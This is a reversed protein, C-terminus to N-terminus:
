QSKNTVSNIEAALRRKKRDKEEDSNAHNKARQAFYQQNRIIRQETSGIIMPVEIPRDNQIPILPENNQPNVLVGYRDKYIWRGTKGDLVSKHHPIFFKKGTKSCKFNHKSM